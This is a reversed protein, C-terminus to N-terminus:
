GLYGNRPRVYGFAESLVELEYEELIPQVSADDKWSIMVQAMHSRGVRVLPGRAARM